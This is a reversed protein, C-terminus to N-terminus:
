SRNENILSPQQPLFTCNLADVDHLITFDPKNDVVLGVVM